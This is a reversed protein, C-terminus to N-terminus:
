AMKRSHRGGPYNNGPGVYVQRFTVIILYGIGALFFLHIPPKGVPFIDYVARGRCLFSSLWNQRNVFPYASM